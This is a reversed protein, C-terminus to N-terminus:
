RNEHAVERASHRPLHGVEASLETIFTKMRLGFCHYDLEREAFERGRMGIEDARSRDELAENLMTSFAEVSSDQAVYANVGHAFREGVEGVATTIIPRSSACYEGIKHPFRARDQDTPRLPILLAYADVYLQSLERDTLDSIIRVSNQRKLSALERHFRAFESETGNLVLYLQVENVPDLREFAQLIFQVIEMYGVYGCFLFYDPGPQREIGDFRSLDVLGPDKLWRKNPFRRTIREVLFQSIPLVGDVLLPVWEDFLYANLRRRWQSHRAISSYYEVVHVIIPFGLFAAMVRYYLVRSVSGTSIIATIQNHRSSAYLVAFEKVIGRLRTAKRAIWGDPRSLTGCANVYPISEFVGCPPFQEKEKWPAVSWWRSLVTVTVGAAILGKAVLRVKQTEALGLPFDDLGLYIVSPTEEIM